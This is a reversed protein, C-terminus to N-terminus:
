LQSDKPSPSRANPDRPSPTALQGLVRGGERGGECLRQHQLLRRLARPGGVEAHLVQTLDLGVVLHAGRDGGRPSGVVLGDRVGRGRGCISSFSACVRRSWGGRPSSPASPEAM